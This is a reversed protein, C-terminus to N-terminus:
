PHAVTSQEIAGNAHNIANKLRGMLGKKTTPIPAAAASTPARDPHQDTNSASNGPSAAAANGSVIKERCSVLASNFYGDVASANPSPKAVFSTTLESSVCASIQDLQAPSVQTDMKLVAKTRDTAYAPIKAPAVCASIDLRSVLNVFPTVMMKGGPGRVMQGLQNM